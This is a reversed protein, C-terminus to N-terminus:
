PRCDDRGVLWDRVFGGVLYAKCESLTCIPSLGSLIGMLERSIEFVLM